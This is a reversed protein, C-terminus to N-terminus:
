LQSALKEVLKNHAKTDVKSELIKEAGLIALAAVQTRLEVRARNVEQEIEAKAGAILREGEAQAQQKADEIIANAQKNAQEIIQTAQERSERLTNSVKEQALKLDQQARGAADLGEAIKKQREQMAQTLPPWVYKMCFWVFIAFAITQGFLTLNINM